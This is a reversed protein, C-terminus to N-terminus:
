APTPTATAATSSRASAAPRRARPRSSSSSTPASAPSCGAATSPRSTWSSSWALGNLTSMSCRRRAAREIEDDTLGLLERCSATPTRASARRAATPDRRGHAPPTASMRFPVGELPLEGVEAHTCVAHLPRPRRAAPRAGVPRGRGARVRPSGPRRCAPADGRLSGPDRTWASHRRARRRAGAHRRRSRRMTRGAASRAVLRGTSTPAHVLHRGLPRRGLARTRARLRAAAATARRSTPAGPAVARERHLRAAAPRQPRDGARAALRRRAPGRGHAAPAAPRPSCPSRASTAVWTTSTPSRGARRRAAPCGSWIRSGPSRRRPPAWRSTADRGPGDHGYGCM